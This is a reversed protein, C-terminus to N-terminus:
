KGVQAAVMPLPGAARRQLYSELFVRVQATVIDGVEGVVCAERISYEVVFHEAPAYEREM